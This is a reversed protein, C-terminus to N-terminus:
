TPHLAGGGTKWQAHRPHALLDLAGHLMRRLWSPLDM